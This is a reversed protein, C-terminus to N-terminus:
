KNRRRNVFSRVRREILPSHASFHTREAEPKPANPFRREVERAITFPTGLQARQPDLLAIKARTGRRIKTAM